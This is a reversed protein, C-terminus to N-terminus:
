RSGRVMIQRLQTYFLVVDRRHIILFFLYGVLILGFAYWRSLYIISILYVCSLVILSVDPARRENSLLVQVYNETYINRLFTAIVVTIIMASISDFAFAGISCGLLSISLTVLNVKFLLGEQRLVKLFTAGLIDMRGNFVCIPLLLGLMKLGQTYDPLWMSLLVTLPIFILYSVPLVVSLFRAMTTFISLLRHNGIQRFTPFLVMSVQAVFTMLFSILSVAFSLQSFTEIDWKLDVFLRLVGLILFGAINALMLKIGVTIAKVSESVTRKFDLIGASVFDRFNWACYSLAVLKAIIYALVYPKFSDNHTAVLVLLPLFFTGKEVMVAYSYIRTENMAQFIYGMFLTSNNIIILFATSALVFSREYSTPGFIAIAIITLTAFSQSLLGFLFQSHITRKDIANRIKGGNILYVGDNLGLHFLGVYSTYFIFLQWYGFQSVGLVKPVILSM